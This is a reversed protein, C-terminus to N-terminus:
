YEFSFWKNRENTKKGTMTPAALRLQRHNDYTQNYMVTVDYVADLKDSLAKIAAVTAGSRPYLVFDFPTVGLYNFINWYIFDKNKFGKQQAFQRSREIVDQSNSPNFRTGEPFIVLWVPLGNYAVQRM